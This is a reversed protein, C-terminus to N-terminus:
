RAVLHNLLAARVGSRVRWAAEGVALEAADALRQAQVIRYGRKGATEVPFNLSAAGIAWPVVAPAGTATYAPGLGLNPNPRQGATIIAARAVRLKAEAVRVVPSYFLGVLTLA